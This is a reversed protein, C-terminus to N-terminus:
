IWNLSVVRDVAARIGRLALSLQLSVVTGEAGLEEALQVEGGQAVELIEVGAEPGPGLLDFTTCLM